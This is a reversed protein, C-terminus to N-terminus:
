SRLPLALPRIPAATAGRIPLCAGVFAFEYVHEAALEELDVVEMIPVGAESLLYTHVPQWNDPDVSPMQELALNDAGIIMAGATALFRSGALDLGPEPALYRERAPWVSMRGTRVLVVDGSRLETHQRRLAAELERPGIGFSDPLVNTGQAGAVDILVGRAVIPPIRDAGAVTWGRSGLHERETFRNWIAGNYGYHNLADIHTGCHTYMLLCDGSYSVRSHHEAGLGMPDDTVTGGPTHSMWIQFPPDGAATWSPMGNFYEVALDFPRSGDAEALVGGMSAPTMLNLMGAQDNPGFPSASPRGPEATLAAIRDGTDPALSCM